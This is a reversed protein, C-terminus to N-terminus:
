LTYYGINLNYLFLYTTVSSYRHPGTGGRTSHHDDHLGSAQSGSRHSGRSNAAAMGSGSPVPATAGQATEKPRHTPTTEGGSSAGLSEGGKRQMEYLCKGHGMPGEHGRAARGCALCSRKRRPMIGVGYPGPSSISTAVVSLWLIAVRHDFESLSRIFWASAAWPSVMCILQHHLNDYFYSLACKVGSSLSGLQSLFDM